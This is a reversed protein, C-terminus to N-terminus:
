VTERLPAGGRESSLRIPSCGVSPPVMLGLARATELNLFLEFQVPLDGPDAGKLIKDVYSGARRFLDPFNAGYSALGGM